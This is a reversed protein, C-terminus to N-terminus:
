FSYNDREFNNQQHGQLITGPLDSAVLFLQAPLVSRQSHIPIQAAHQSYLDVCCSQNEWRMETLGNLDEWAPCCWLKPHVCLLRTVAHRPLWPWPQLSPHVPSVPQARTQSIAENVNSPKLPCIKKWSRHCRCLTNRTLDWSFTACSLYVCNLLPTQVEGLLILGDVSIWALNILMMWWVTGWLKGVALNSEDKWKRYMKWLLQMPVQM